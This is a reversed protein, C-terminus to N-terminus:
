SVHLTYATMLAFEHSFSNTVQDVSQWFDHTKEPHETDPFTSLTTPIFVTLFTIGYPLQQLLCFLRPWLAMVLAINSTFRMREYIKILSEM